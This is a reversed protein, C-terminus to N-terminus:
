YQASYSGGSDASHLISVLFSLSHVMLGVGILPMYTRGEPYDFSASYRDKCHMHSEMGPIEQLVVLVDKYSCVVM